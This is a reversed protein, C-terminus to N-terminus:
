LKGRWGRRALCLTLAAASAPSPLSTTRTMSSMSFTCLFSREITGSVTSISTPQRGLVAQVTHRLL